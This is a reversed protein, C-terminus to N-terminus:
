TKKERGAAAEEETLLRVHIANALEHINASARNYKSDLSDLRTNLSALTTAILSINQTNGEVKSLRGEMHTFVANELGRIRDTLNMVDDHNEKFLDRVEKRHESMARQQIDLMQRMTPENAPGMVEDSVTTSRKLARRAWLASLLSGVFSGAYGIYHTYSNPDLM